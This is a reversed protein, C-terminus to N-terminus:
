STPRRPVQLVDGPRLRRADVDNLSMVEHVFVAHDVGAPRHPELAEWATEGSEVVVSTTARGATPGIAGAQASAGDGGSSLGGLAILMASLACALTATAMRRRRRAVRRARRHVGVSSAACAGSPSSVAVRTM